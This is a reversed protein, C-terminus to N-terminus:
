RQLSVGGGPTGESTHTMLHRVRIVGKSKLQIGFESVPSDLDLRGEQVLQLLVTSAFPKTLSALHYVTEPTSSKRSAVDAYGFGRAWTVTGDKAIAASMGPVQWRVRLVELDQELKEFGAPQAAGPESCLNTALLFGLIAISYRSRTMHRNERPSM